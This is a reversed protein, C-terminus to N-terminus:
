KSYKQRKVVENDKKESQGSIAKFREIIRETMGKSKEIKQEQESINYYKDNLENLKVSIDQVVGKKVINIFDNLDNRLDKLDLNNQKFNKIIEIKRNKDSLNLGAGFGSIMGAAWLTGAVTLGAGMVQSAISGLSLSLFLVESPKGQVIDALLDNKREKEKKLIKYQLNGVTNLAHVAMNNNNHNDSEYFYNKRRLVENELFAVDEKTLM